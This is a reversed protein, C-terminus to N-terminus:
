GVPLIPMVGKLQRSAGRKDSPITGFELLRTAGTGQAIRQQLEAAKKLNLYTLAPLCSVPRIIAQVCCIFASRVREANYPYRV